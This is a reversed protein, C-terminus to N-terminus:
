KFWSKQEPTPKTLHANHEQVIQTPTPMQPTLVKGGLSTAVGKTKEYTRMGAIGLMATVIPFISDPDLAPLETLHFLTKAFPVCDV